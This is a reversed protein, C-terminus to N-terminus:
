KSLRLNDSAPVITTQSEPNRSRAKLLVFCPSLFHSNMNCAEDLGDDFLQSLALLDPEKDFVHFRVWTRQVIDTKRKLVEGGHLPPVVPRVSGQIPLPLFETQGMGRAREAVRKPKM